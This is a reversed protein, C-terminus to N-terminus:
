STDGSNPVAPMLQRPIPRYRSRYYARKALADAVSFLWLAQGLDSMRSAAIGARIRRADKRRM